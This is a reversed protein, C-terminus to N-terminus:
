FQAIVCTLNVNYHEKVGAFQKNGPLTEVAHFGQM